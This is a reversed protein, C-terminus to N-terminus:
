IQRTSTRALVLSRIWQNLGRHRMLAGRIEEIQHEFSRWSGDVWEQGLITYPAQASPLMRLLWEAIEDDNAYFQLGRGTGTRQWDNLEDQGRLFSM